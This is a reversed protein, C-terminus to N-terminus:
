AESVCIIPTLQAVVIDELENSLDEGLTDTLYNILFCSTTKKNGIHTGLNRMTLDIDKLQNLL